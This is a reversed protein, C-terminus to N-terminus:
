DLPQIRVIYGQYDAYWVTVPNTSNDIWTRRDHGFPEPLVYETWKDTHPNYRLMGRGHLVGAWIEGNKDPMAEYFDTYPTYGTPAFFERMKGAKNDIEVLSGNKGGFWANGYPDFGGRSPGSLRTGTDLLKMKGTRTDLIEAYNGGTSPGGGAWYNGDNSITNDYSSRGDMAYSQVVNGTEPDIKVAGQRDNGWISGDPSLAFNFNGMNLPMQQFQGTSPDFKTLKKAWPESLWVTDNRKQDVVVRHTGPVATPIPPASYETIIGTRPDLKGFFRSKHSTYWINGKSDGSVDHASLL